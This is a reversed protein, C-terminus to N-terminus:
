ARRRYIPNSNDAWIIVHTRANMGAARLPHTESM